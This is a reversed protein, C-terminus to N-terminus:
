STSLLLRRRGAVYGCLFGRRLPTKRLLDILPLSKMSPAASSGAPWSRAPSAVGRRSAAVLLHSARRGDRDTKRVSSWTAVIETLLYWALYGRALVAPSASAWVLSGLASSRYACLACGQTGEAERRLEGAGRAVECVRRGARPAAGSASRLRPPSPGM